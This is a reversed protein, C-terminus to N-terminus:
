EKSKKSRKKGKPKPKPYSFSAAAQIKGEFVKISVNILQDVGITDTSWGYAYTIHDGDNERECLLYKASGEELQNTKEVLLRREVKEGSNDLLLVKYMVDLMEVPEKFYKVVLLRKDNWETEAFTINGYKQSGEDLEGRDYADCLMQFYKDAESFEDIANLAKILTQYTKYDKPNLQVYEKLAIACKTYNHKVAYELIGIHRLIEGYSEYSKDTFYKASKYYEELAKDFDNKLHYVHPVMLYPKGFEFDQNRALQFYFLASDMNSENYFVNGLEYYNKQGKPNSKIALHFNTKAKEIQGDYLLALGKYLYIFDSKDGKELAADYMEIAKKDNELQFFAYGICYLDMSILSDIKVEYTILDSYKGQNYLQEITQTKGLTTQSIIIAILLKLKM